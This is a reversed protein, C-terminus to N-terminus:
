SRQRSLGIVPIHRTEPWEHLRALADFGTL